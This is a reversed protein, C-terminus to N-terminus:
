KCPNDMTKAKIVVDKLWNYYPTMKTYIDLVRRFFDNSYFDKNIPMEDSLSLSKYLLLDEYNKLPTFGKPYKKIKDADISWGEKEALNLIDQLQKASKEITVANRFAKIAYPSFYAMGVGTYYFPPEIHLYYCVSEIRSNGYWFTIGMHNKFPAKGKHRRADRYIRFISGDVKPVVNVDPSIKILKEGMTKVFEIAPALFYKEYRDRNANFWDKNNNKSLDKMFNITEEKFHFM